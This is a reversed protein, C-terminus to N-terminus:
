STRRRQFINRDKIESKDLFQSSQKEIKIKMKSNLIKFYKKSESLTMKPTKFVKM